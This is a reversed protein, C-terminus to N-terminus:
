VRPDPGQHGLPRSARVGPAGAGAAAGFWWSPKTYQDTQAQLTVQIGTLILASFILSRIILSYLFWAM